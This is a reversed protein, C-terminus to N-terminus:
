TIIINILDLIGPIQPSRKDDVATPTFLEEDRNSEPPNRDDDLERVQNDTAVSISPAPAAAPSASFDGDDDDDDAAYRKLSTRDSASDVCVSDVEDESQNLHFGAHLGCM